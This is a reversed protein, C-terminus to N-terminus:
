LQRRKEAGGGGRGWEENRYCDEVALKRAQSM